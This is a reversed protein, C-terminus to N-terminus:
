RIGAFTILGFSVIAMLLSACLGAHFPQLGIKRMDGVDTELGVATLAAVILFQSLSQIGRVIAPSFLGLSNLITM